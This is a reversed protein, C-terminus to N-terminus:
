TIGHGTEKSGVVFRHRVFWTGTDPLTDNVARACGNVTPASVHDVPRRRMDTATSHNM